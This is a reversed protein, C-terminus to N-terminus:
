IRDNRQKPNFNRAVGVVCGLWAYNTKKVRARLGLRAAVKYFLKRDAESELRVPASRSNEVLRKMYDFRSLMEDFVM